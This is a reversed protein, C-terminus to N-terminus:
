LPRKRGRILLRKARNDVRFGARFVAAGGVQGPRAPYLGQHHLGPKPFTQGPRSQYEGAAEPFDGGAVM